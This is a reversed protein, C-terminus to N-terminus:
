VHYRGLNKFLIFTTPVILYCLFCLFGVVVGMKLNTQAAMIAGLIVGFLVSPLFFFRVLSWYSNKALESKQRIKAQSKPSQYPNQSM